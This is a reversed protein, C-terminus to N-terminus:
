IVFIVCQHVTQAGGLRMAFMFPHSLQLCGLIHLAFMWAPMGLCHTTSDPATTNCRAQIQHRAWALLCQMSKAM